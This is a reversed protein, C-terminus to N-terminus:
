PALRTRGKSRKGRDSSSRLDDQGAYDRPHGQSADGVCRSAPTVSSPSHWGAQGPRRRRARLRGCTGREPSASGVAVRGSSSEAGCGLLRTRCDDPRARGQPGVRWGLRRSPGERLCSGGGDLEVGDFEGSTRGRVGRSSSPAAPGRCGAALDFEDDVWEEETALGGRRWAPASGRQGGGHRAQRKRGAYSSYTAMGPRNEGLPIPIECTPAGTGVQSALVRRLGRRGRGM